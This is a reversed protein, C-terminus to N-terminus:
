AALYGLQSLRVRAADVSVEFAEGVLQELDTAERSDSPLQRMERGRFYAAVTLHLRSKPMLLAAAAYSAQWEMWDFGSELTLVNNGHCRRIEERDIWRRQWAPAHLRVHGYEHALVHRLRHVRSNDEFLHRAICVAPRCGTLFYTVGEVGDGENSLDAYLHLSAAHKEIMKILAGTPLRTTHQGYLRETFQTVVRKCRRDLAEQFFYPRKRFRGTRDAIWIMM